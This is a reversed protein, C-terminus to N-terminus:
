QKYNVTNLGNLRFAKNAHVPPAPINTDVKISLKARGESERISFFQDM